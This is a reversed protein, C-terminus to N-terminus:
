PATYGSHPAKIIFEKLSFATAGEHQLVVNCRNSKTCYVTDDNRLMNEAVYHSGKMEQYIGGDCSVIEMVLKGPEVQGYKGYRFASNEDFPEAELKRRKAQRGDTSYELDQLAVTPLPADLHARMLASAQELQRGATHLDMLGNRANEERDRVRQGELLIRARLLEARREDLTRTRLRRPTSSHRRERSHYGLHSRSSGPPRNSNEPEADPPM